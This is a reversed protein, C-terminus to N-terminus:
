HMRRLEEIMGKIFDVTITKDMLSDVIAQQLDHPISLFREILEGDVFRFPEDAQRVATRLARYRNFPMEGPSDVRNSIATQLRM